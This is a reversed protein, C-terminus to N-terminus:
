RLSFQSVVVGDPSQHGLHVVYLQSTLENYYLREPCRLQVESDVEVIVRELRLQDTLLLVRHNDCDAVLVRDQGDLTLHSPSKIDTFKALEVGSIDVESM